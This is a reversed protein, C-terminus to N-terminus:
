TMILPENECVVEKNLKIEDILKELHVGEGKSDGGQSPPPLNSLPTRDRVAAAGGGGAAVEAPKHRQWLWLFLGILLVVVVAAYIGRRRMGSRRGDKLPQTAEARRPRM